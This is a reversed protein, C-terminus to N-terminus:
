RPCRWHKGGCLEYELHSMKRKENQCVHCIFRPNLLTWLALSAGGIILSIYFIVQIVVLLDHTSM